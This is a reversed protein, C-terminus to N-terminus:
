AIQRLVEALPNQLFKANQMKTKNQAADKAKDELEKMLEKRYVAVGEKVAAMADKMKDPSLPPKADVGYSSKLEDERKKVLEEIKDLNMKLTYNTAGGDAKMKEFFAKVDEDAKEASVDRQSKTKSAIKPTDYNKFASVFDAESSSAKKVTTGQEFLSTQVSKTQLNVM